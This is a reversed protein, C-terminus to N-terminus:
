ASNKEQAIGLHAQVINVMSQYLDDIGQYSEIVYKSFRQQEEGTRPKREITFNEAGAILALTRSNLEHAPKFIPMPLLAREEQMIEYLTKSYTDLKSIAGRLARIDFEGRKDSRQVLDRAANRVRYALSLIEKLTDVQKDYIAAQRRIIEEFRLRGEELSKEFRYDIARDFSKKLIYIIGATIVSSSILSTVVSTLIVQWDM